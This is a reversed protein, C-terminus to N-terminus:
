KIKNLHTMYSCVYHLAIKVQKKKLNAIQQETQTIDRDLKEMNQIIEEKTLNAYISSEKNITANSTTPKSQDNETLFLYKCFDKLV